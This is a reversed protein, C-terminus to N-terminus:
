LSSSSGSESTDWEPSSQPPDLPKDLFDVLLLDGHMKALIYLDWELLFFKDLLPVTHKNRTDNAYHCRVDMAFQFRVNIKPVFAELSGVAPLCFALDGGLLLGQVQWQLVQRGSGHLAVHKQIPVLNCVRTRRIKTEPPPRFRTRCM